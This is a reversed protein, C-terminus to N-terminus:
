YLHIYCGYGHVTNCDCGALFFVFALGNYVKISHFQFMKEQFTLYFYQLRTYSLVYESLVFFMDVGLYGNKIFSESPNIIHYIVIYIAAIGRAGNLARIEKM